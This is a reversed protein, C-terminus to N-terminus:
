SAYLVAASHGSTRSESEGRLREHLFFGLFTELLVLHAFSPVGIHHDLARVSLFKVVAESTGWCTQLRHHRYLYEFDIAHDYRVSTGAFVGNMMDGAM